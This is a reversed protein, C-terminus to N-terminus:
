VTCTTQEVHFQAGVLAEFLYFPYDRIARHNHKGSVLFFAFIDGPGPVVPKM